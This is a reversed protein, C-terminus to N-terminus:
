ASVVAARSFQGSRDGCARTQARIHDRYGAECWHAGCHDFSKRLLLRGWCISRSGGLHPLHHAELPFHADNKHEKCCLLAGVAPATLEPLPPIPLIAVSSYIPAKPAACLLLELVRYIAWVRM